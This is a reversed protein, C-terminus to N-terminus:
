VTGYVILWPLAGPRIRVALERGLRRSAGPIASITQRIASGPSTGTECSTASGSSRSM